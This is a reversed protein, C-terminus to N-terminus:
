MEAKQSCHGRETDPARFACVPPPVPLTSSRFVCALCSGQDGGRGRAELGRSQQLRQPCSLAELDPTGLELCM